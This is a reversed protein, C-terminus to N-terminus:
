QIFVMHAPDPRFHSDEWHHLEASVATAVMHNLDDARYIRLGIEPSFTCVYQTESGVVADAVPEAYSMYGRGDDYEPELTDASLRMLLPPVYRLNEPTAAFGRYADAVHKPLLRPHFGAFSCFVSNRDASLEVNIPLWTHGLSPQTHDYARSFTRVSTRGGRREYRMVIGPRMPEIIMGNYHEAVEEPTEGFINAGRTEESVHAQKYNAFLTFGDGGRNDVALHSLAIGGVDAIGALTEARLEAADRDIRVIWITSPQMPTLRQSAEPNAYLRDIVAGTKLLGVYAAGAEEFYFASHFNASTLEADDDPARLPWSRTAGTVTDIEVIRLGTATAPVDRDPQALASEHYYARKGDLSFAFHSTSTARPAEPTLEVHRLLRSTTWTALDVEVPSGFLLNTAWLRGNAVNLGHNPQTAYVRPLAVTARPVQREVEAHIAEMPLITARARGPKGARLEIRMLDAPSDHWRSFTMRDKIRRSCAVLLTGEAERPIAGRVYLEISPLPPSIWEAAASM